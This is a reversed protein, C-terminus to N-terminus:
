DPQLELTLFGALEQSLLGPFFLRALFQDGLGLEKPFCGILNYGRNLLVEVLDCHVVNQHGLARALVRQADVRPFTVHLHFGCGFFSGSWFM